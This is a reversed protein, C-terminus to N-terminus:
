SPEVATHTVITAIHLTNSRTKTFTTKNTQTSKKNKTKYKVTGNEQNEKRRIKKTRISEAASFFSMSFM